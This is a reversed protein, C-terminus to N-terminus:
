NRDTRIWKTQKRVIYGIYIAIKSFIYIPIHLMEKASLISRGYLLWTLFVTVLLSMLYINITSFYIWNNSMLSFVSILLWAAAIIMVLLSLPPIILDMMMGLAEISPKTIARKFLRPAFQKLTSLHGHEWRERQTQEAKESSPFYSYVLAEDCYTAGMGNEALEVGLRMDEVIDGTALKASAIADWPFAMGTGTLPVPMGLRSLGRLRIKNKVMFAFESVKVAIRNVSGSKMLYCAQVPRGRQHVNQKLLHLANADLLCDADVITVIDPQQDQQHLYDMGYALAYGKGRETEHHRELAIFGHQRVIDATNDQCNDAIVVLTDNIGIHKKLNELTHAIIEAENHAPMLLTNKLNDPLQVEKAAPTNFLGLLCELVFMSVPLALIILAITIITDLM